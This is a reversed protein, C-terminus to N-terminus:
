PEGPSRCDAGPALVTLDVADGNSYNLGRAEGLVRACGASEILAAEVEPVLARPTAYSAFRGERAAPAMAEPALFAVDGGLQFVLSPERYDTTAAPRAEPPIIQAIRRSLTFPELHPAVLGRGGAHFLLAALVALALGAPRRMTLLAGAAAALTLAAFVPAAARAMGDGYVLALAVM